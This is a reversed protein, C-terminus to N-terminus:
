AMAEFHIRDGVHFEELREPTVELVDRAACRPLYLPRWRRALCRDVVVGQDDLWIVGLDFFVFLMHIATELRSLRTGRLLLGREQALARRFMLGRLRCLFSCCDRVRLPHNLPRTLNNVVLDTM